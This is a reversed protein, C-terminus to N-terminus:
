LHRLNLLQQIQFLLPLCGVLLLSTMQFQMRFIRGDGVTPTLPCIQRQSPLRTMLQPTLSVHQYPFPAKRFTIESHNLAHLAQMSNRIVHLLHHQFILM